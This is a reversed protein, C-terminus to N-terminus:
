KLLLRQQVTLNWQGEEGSELKGQAETIHKCERPRFKWIPCDCGFSGDRRQSVKYFKGARSHSEIMWYRLWENSM